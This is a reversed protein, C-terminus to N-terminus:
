FNHDIYKCIEDNIGQNGMSFAKQFDHYMMRSLRSLRSKDLAMDIRYM